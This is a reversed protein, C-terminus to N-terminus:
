QVDYKQVKYCEYAFTKSASWDHAMFNGQSGCWSETNSDGTLETTLSTLDIWEGSGTWTYSALPFAYVPFTKLDHDTYGGLIIMYEQHQQSKTTTNITQSQHTEKINLSREKTDNDVSAEQKVEADKGITIYKTTANLNGMIKGGKNVILDGHRSNNFACMAMTNVM